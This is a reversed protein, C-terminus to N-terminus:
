REQERESEDGGHRPWNSYGTVGCNKQAIDFMVLVDLNLVRAYAAVREGVTKAPRSKLAPM